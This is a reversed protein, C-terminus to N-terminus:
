RKKAIVRMGASQGLLSPIMDVAWFIGLALPSSLSFFRQWFKPWRHKQAVHNMSWTWVVAAAPTSFHAVDFGVENLMRTISERNFLTWHRPFHYVGWTEKPFFRRDWANMNPTEILFVGGPSLIRHLNRMVDKPDAVHEIVQIMAVVDFSGDPFDLEEARGLVGRFGKKELAEVAGQELEVAYLNENPVGSAAFARLLAGDGAGIDMVRTQAAPKGLIQLVQAIKQQDRRQRAKLVISNGEDEFSYSYYEEQSYIISLTEVTPRPNLYYTKCRNCQALTFTQDGCCHNDYDPGEAVIVFDDAGCDPCLVHEVPIAPKTKELM